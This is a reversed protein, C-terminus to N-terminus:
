SRSDPSATHSTEAHEFLWVKNPRVGGGSCNLISVNSPRDTGDAIIDYVSFCYTGTCNDVVIDSSTGKVVIGRSCGYFSCRSVVCNDSDDILLAAVPSVTRTGYFRLNEFRLNDFGNSTICNSRVTVEITDSGPDAGLIVNTGDYFYDNVGLSGSTESHYMLGGNRFVFFPDTYSSDSDYVSTDLNWTTEIDTGTFTGNRLLIGSAGISLTNRYKGGTFDVIDGAQAGSAGWVIEDIAWPNNLTGDGSSGTESVYHITM